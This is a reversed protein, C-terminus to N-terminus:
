LDSELRLIIADMDEYIDNFDALLTDLGGMYGPPSPAIENDPKLPINGSVRDAMKGLRNRLSTFSSLLEGLRQLKDEMRPAQKVQESIRASEYVGEVGAM